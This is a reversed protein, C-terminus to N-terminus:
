YLLVSSSQLNQSTVCLKRLFLTKRQGMSNNTVLVQSDFVPCGQM